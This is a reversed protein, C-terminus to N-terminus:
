NLEKLDMIIKARNGKKPHKSSEHMYGQFQDLREKLNPLITDWQSFNPYWCSSSHEKLDEQGILWSYVSFINKKASYKLAFYYTLSTWTLQMPRTMMQQKM